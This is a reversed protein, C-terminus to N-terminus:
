SLAEAWRQLRAEAREGVAAARLIRSHEGTIEFRVEVREAPALHALREAWEVVTVGSGELYESMGIEELEAPDEIRYLDVHYLPVRGAHENVLTFTPSAM